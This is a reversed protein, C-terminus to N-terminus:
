MWSRCTFGARALAGAQRNTLRWGFCGAHSELLAVPGSVFPPVRSAGTLLAYGQELALDVGIFDAV